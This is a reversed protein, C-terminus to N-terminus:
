RFLEGVYSMKEEILTIDETKGMEISLYNKYSANRLLEKLQQHITRVEIPKLGPESIHVHNILHIYGNLESIEEGNEIMTGVDLNLLFGKSDVQEVLKIAEQTRNIYNTNYISPNAELGIATGKQAAYDGVKRFFLIGIEPDASAPLMRNVPCGFVLNGCGIAFAFDIAKKTYNMLFSREEESGFLREARGFWISQMSSVQFGWKRKLGEAWTGASTLSSNYPNQLFVRTPAIELGEFGYKKLLFYMKEDHEQAWGINSISLKM